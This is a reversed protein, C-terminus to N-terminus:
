RWRGVLYQLRAGDFLEQFFPVGGAGSRLLRKIQRPQERQPEIDFAHRCLWGHTTRGFPAEARATQVPRVQGLNFLREDPLKDIAQVDIWSQLNLGHRNLFLPALPQQAPRLHALRDHQQQVVLRRSQM